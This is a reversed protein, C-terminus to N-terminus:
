VLPLASWVLDSSRGAQHYLTRNNKLRAITVLNPHCRHAHLYPAQSYSSDVAEVCLAQGFPLQPDKLLAEVQSAGVMEKNESTAVRQSLLPLVWSGSVGVEPELGLAVTSYQHGITVPKNGKIVTPEYVMARDAVTQGYPRYLPGSFSSLFVPFFLGIIVLHSFM